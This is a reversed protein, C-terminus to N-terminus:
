YDRELFIGIGTSGDSGLSGKVTVGRRVDLNLNIQSRGDPDVEVESYLNDSLYKGARLGIEGSADATIDLDDLGFGRRLRGVVGEGGRGALTAVAAALQAAQFASLTDLGRGFLLRSLVEEEPLEPVSTFRVEPADARGTIAVSTVVGDSDNSALIDLAPILDGQLDIRARALTLRKGLIDLRGRVLDLGGSPVVAATTGRLAFGGEFEADIGRGRLFVRNAAAVAVDLALAGGGRGAAAGGSRGPGGGGIGARRRTERVPPTDYFHRLGALDGTADFGSDPVRIETAGLEIRGSLRGGAGPPGRLALRGSASTQYLDPDRLVLGALTIALDAAYPPALGASGEVAVTGGASGRAQAAIRAQGGSLVATGSLDALAVPLAPDALRGGTLRLTGSLSALRPPGALRLDLAVQGALAREGLFANALAAQASGRVALDARLPGTAMRGRVTIDVGGPGRLALDVPYGGADASVRGAATLPGPFEPLLLALDALRAEVSFGGDGTGAARATLAPSAFEATEIAIRGARRGAALRLRSDGGILRDAEPVGVALGRATGEVTLRLDDAPGAVAASLTVGGRLRPDAGRLDAASAELRLDSGAPDLHGSAAIAAQAGVLRLRGIGVRAGARRLDAALTTEGRLLGDAAAIGTRLDRASGEATLRGDAPTGAFRGRLAVSGGYGPGLIAADALEIEATIDSGATAILGDAAARGGGAALRLAEIRTGAADRALRAEVRGAGRLLADAEAIGVALDRTDLALTVDFDGGLPSGRGSLSGEAAGALPRGALGAFRSLDAARLQAAGELRFGSALGAVTGLLVGGFDGGELTLSGVTVAGSGERWHLTTKGALRPGLAAALAPDAPALGEAAYGFTGGVVRAAATRGIRGSGQLELRGIALDPRSVGEAAIRGTWGEDDAADFNLAVSARAVRTPVGPLPLLVPAGDAGAIEGGLAVHEPLGDPALRLAGALRLARASLDLRRLDLRGAASRSGEASLRLDPGFFAAYDPVLLPAIDGSAEARFDLGGGAAGALTLEGTLRDRGDTALRMRAAFATLPGAGRLWLEAAPRGPVGLLSVALGGPGETADLSLVLQGSANAYSAALDIQGAPGADTRRIAASARGEGGALTLSADLTGEVPQGLVPAGIEIRAAALTGIAISVPLEPLAFGPAEPDPLAPAAPAPLRDLAVRAATLANVEIRGSLVAARNWDLTVGELTLWVGADDAITLREVTARSSLAGAFGTVTVTRGADSLSDELFATLLGRDDQAAAALPWLLMVLPLLRRM